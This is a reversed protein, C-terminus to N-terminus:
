IEVARALARELADMGGPVTQLETKLMATLSVFVPSNLIITTQESIAGALKGQTEVHRGFQRSAQIAVPHCKRDDENAEAIRRVRQKEIELEGYLDSRVSEFGGPQDPNPVLECIKAQEPFFHSNFHNKVSAKHVKFRAAISRHSQQDVCAQEIEARQPHSCISCSRGPGRHKGTTMEPM